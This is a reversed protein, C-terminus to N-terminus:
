KRLFSDLTIKRLYMEEEEKKKSSTRYIMKREFEVLDHFVSIISPDMGKIMIVQKVARMVQRLFHVKIEDHCVEPKKIQNRDYKIWKLKFAGKNLYEEIAVPSSTVQAFINSTLVTTIGEYTIEYDHM